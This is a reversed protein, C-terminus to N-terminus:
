LCVLEFQFWRGDVMLGLADVMLGSGDVMLGFADVMLGSGPGGRSGITWTGFTSGRIDRM